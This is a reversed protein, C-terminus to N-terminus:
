HTEQLIHHIAGDPRFYTEARLLLATLILMHYSIRYNTTTQIKISLLSYRASPANTWVGNRTLLAEKRGQNYLSTFSLSLSLLPCLVNLLCVRFVYTGVAAVLNLSNLSFSIYPLRSLLQNSKIQDSLMYHDTCVFSSYLAAWKLLLVYWTLLLPM